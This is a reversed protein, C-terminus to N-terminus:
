RLSWKQHPQHQEVVVTVDHPSCPVGHDAPHLKPRADDLLEVLQGHEVRVRFSARAYQAPTVSIWAGPLHECSYCVPRGREDHYLRLVVPEPDPWRVSAFFEQFIETNHHSVTAGTKSM